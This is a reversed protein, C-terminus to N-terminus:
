QWPSGRLRCADPTPPRGCRGPARAARPLAPGTRRDRPRRALASFRGDAADRGGTRRRRVRTGGTGRDPPISDSGRASRSRLSTRRRRGRTPDTGHCGPAPETRRTRRNRGGPEVIKRVPDETEAGGTRRNPLLSSPGIGWSTRVALCWPVTVTGWPPPTPARTTRSGDGPPTSRASPDGLELPPDGSGIGWHPRVRRYRPVTGTGWLSRLPPRTNCLPGGSRQVRPVPPPSFLVWRPISRPFRPIPRPLPPATRGRTQLSGPVPPDVSGRAPDIIHAGHNRCPRGN